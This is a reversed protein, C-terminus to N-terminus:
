SSTQCFLINPIPPRSSNWIKPAFVNFARAGFSLNHRSCFTYTVLLHVRPRQPSNFVCRAFSIQAVPRDRQAILRDNTTMMSWDRLLQGMVNSLLKRQVAASYLCLLQAFWRRWQSISLAADVVQLFRRGYSQTPPSM